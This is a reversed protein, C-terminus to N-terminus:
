NSPAAHIRINTDLPKYNGREQASIQYWGYWLMARVLEEKGEEIGARESIWDM